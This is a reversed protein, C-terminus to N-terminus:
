SVEECAVQKLDMEIDDDGKCLPWVNLSEREELNRFGHKHANIKESMLVLPTVRRMDQIKM